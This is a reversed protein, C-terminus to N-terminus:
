SQVPNPCATFAILIFPIKISLDNFFPNTVFLNGTIIYKTNIKAVNITTILASAGTFLWSFFAYLVYESKEVPHNFLSSDSAESSWKDPVVTIWRVIVAASQLLVNNKKAFVDFMLTSISPTHRYRFLYKLECSKPFVGPASKTFTRIGSPVSPFIRVISISFGYLSSSLAFSSSIYMPSIESIM